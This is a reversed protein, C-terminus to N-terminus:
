TVKELTLADTYCGEIAKHIDNGSHKVKMASVFLSGHKTLHGLLAPIFLECDGCFVCLDDNRKLEYTETM